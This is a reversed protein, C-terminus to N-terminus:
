PSEERAAYPQRVSWPWRGRTQAITVVRPGGEELWVALGDSRLLARPGILSARGVPCIEPGVRAIVLDADRCDDVLAEIQRTIAIKADGRQVVCGAEDCALDGTRAFKAPLKRLDTNLARQWSGIVRGDSQWARSYLLGGDASRLGLMELKATVLLDPPRTTLALLVGLAFPALGLLRWRRQWLALWLGGLWCLVLSTVPWLAVGIAAGPLGAVAHALWLTADCGWIMAVVLPGELGLPMLLLALLGAPMVLFTTLPVGVLNALVGYTAVNQFHFASLPTTAASAILTTLMVGRLYGLATWWPRQEQGDLPAVRFRGGEYAAILATVAAFSLQFSAGMVTEPRLLIVTVASWALLRMSLPNRDIMIALFAVGCMLFSRVAPVSWGALLLYFATGLIAVAAALKRVPVRLALPQILSLLLRVALYITGAVMSMHLGSISLIHALGSRQMDRWVEDPIGARMGTILAAAMAAGPGDGHALIRDTVATRLRAIRVDIGSDAGAIKEPPGISWGLGGLGEFWAQRAYDFGGPLAPGGPPSLFARVRIREGPLLGEAGHRMSIRVSRPTDRAAIGTLRLRDLTIRWGGERPDAEVVRGEVQRVGERWLVPSAVEGVRWAAGLGGALFASLAALPLFILATQRRTLWAGWGGGAAGAAMLLLLPAAPPEPLSFFCAVGLGLMVPLWLLWREQEAAVEALLPGLALQPWYRLRRLADTAVGADIAASSQM